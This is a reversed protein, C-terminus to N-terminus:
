CFCYYFLILQLRNIEVLSKFGWFWDYVRPFFCFRWNSTITLCLCLSTSITYCWHCVILLLLFINIFVIDIGCRWPVIYRHFTASFCWILNVTLEGFFSPSSVFVKLCSSLRSNFSFFSLLLRSKKFFKWIVLKNM